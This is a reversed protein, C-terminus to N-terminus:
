VATQWISVCFPLEVNEQFNHSRFQFLHRNLRHQSSSLIRNTESQQVPHSVRAVHTQLGSLGLV